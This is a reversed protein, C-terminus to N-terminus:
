LGLYEELTLGSNYVKTALDKGLYRLHWPEYIYGTINEKGQPYRIIFGYHHANKAVWKGADTNGFAQRAWEHQKGVEGVDFALGTQHESQGARASFRNAESEGHQKVYRDFLGKQYHYSRYTSFATLRIGEKKGAAAMQNFASRAEGNEGPAFNSPLPYKKSAILVGNIYTAKAPSSITEKKEPKAINEEKNEEKNVAKSNSNNSNNTNNSKSAEKEKNEMTLREKEAKEEALQREKTEQEEKEKKEKAIRKKEAEEKKAIDTDVLKLLALLKTKENKNLVDELSNLVEEYEKRTVEERITEQEEDSFLGYVKEKANQISEYQVNIIEIEEKLESAFANNIEKVDLFLGNLSTINTEIVDVLIGDELLSQVILQAQLLFEVDDLDSTLQTVKEENTVSTIKERIEAIIEINLGEVLVSKEENVYLAEIAAEVENLALREQEEQIKNQYGVYAYAGSGFGSLLLLLAILGIVKKKTSRQKLNRKELKKIRWKKYASQFQNAILIQYNM